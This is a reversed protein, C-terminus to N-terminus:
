DDNPDFVKPKNSTQNTKHSPAYTNQSVRSMGSKPRSMQTANQGGSGTRAAESKEM